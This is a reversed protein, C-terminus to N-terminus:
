GRSLKTKKLTRHVTDDSITDVIKLAILKDALLQMTWRVRGEPPTSCAIAVLQAEKEGDLIRDRPPRSAKKRYLAAELGEDVFAQRVRHVTATSIDLAEAIRENDWVRGDGEDAKLLIRAHILTAASRKGTSVLRELQTREEATLKVIFKSTM